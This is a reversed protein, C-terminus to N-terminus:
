SKSSKGYDCAQVFSGKAPGGFILPLTSRLSTQTGAFIAPALMMAMLLLALGRAAAEREYVYRCPEARCRCLHRAGASRTGRNAGAVVMRCRVADHRRSVGHSRRAVGSAARFPRFDPRLCAARRSNRRSLSLVLQVHAPRGAFATVLLPLALVVMHLGCFALATIASLLALSPAPRGSM